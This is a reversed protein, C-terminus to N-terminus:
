RLVAPLYIMTYFWEDAGIDPFAGFPRMEGDIDNTIWTSAGVDIAASGIRIHYGDEAFVPDGKLANTGQIGVRALAWFLTHDPFVTASTPNTNTIGWTHSVIITNTLTMASYGDVLIGTGSESGILTNHLLTAKLMNDKNGNGRVSTGSHTVINNFLIPGTESGGFLVIGFSTANDTVWNRAFRSQSAILYVASAGHNYDFINNLYLGSDAFAYLAAGDYPTGLPNVWNLSIKNSRITPQGLYVTIGGGLGYSNARTAYNEQVQNHQVQADSLQMCVGGGSGYGNPNATNSIIMNGDIMTLDAHDLIDGGGYGTKSATETAINNTITNNLIMAGADDVFIGGGCGDSVGHGTPCGGGQGTANGNAIILGDLVPKIKGTIYVVRGQRQADLHTPRKLPNSNMWDSTAYGGRITVSKSIYVVQTVGNRAQVGTYIGQAILIEDGSLAADVASQPLDYCTLGCPIATCGTGGPAVCLIAGFNAIASQAASGLLFLIALSIGLAPIFLVVFRKTKM